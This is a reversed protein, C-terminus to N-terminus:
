SVLKSLTAAMEDGSQDARVPAIFGGDPGMLYLISSHDMTYDNPGDGTRHERYYVRYEKAVREIQEPTGTLGRIRPGFAAAYQKVVEPTDRKPDVTIFVPQVRDAKPGLKDMADAVANLTTPCVDPCFTYGFYVLMYKGRFDRDTVTKGNGDVLTFPGGLLSRGPGSGSFWLFGGTGLLLVAVLVGILAYVYSRSPGPTTKPTTGRDAPNNM